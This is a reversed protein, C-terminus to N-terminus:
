KKCRCVHRLLFLGAISMLILFPLQPRIPKFTAQGDKMEIYGVPSASVGGGGGKGVEGIKKRGYGGGFGYRIKAVPIIKIGSHEVPEHFITKSDVSSLSHALREIFSSKSHDQNKNPM